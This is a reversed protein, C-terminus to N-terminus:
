KKNEKNNNRNTRRTRRQCGRKPEEALGVIQAVIQGDISGEREVEGSTRAGHQTAEFLGGAFCSSLGALLLLLKWWM